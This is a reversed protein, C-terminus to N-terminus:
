EMSARIMDAVSRKLERLPRISAVPCYLCSEDTIKGTILQKRLDTYEASHMAKRISTEGNTRGMKQSRMFCSHVDGSPMLYPSDWPLMCFRTEGPGPVKTRTREGNRLPIVAIDLKVGFEDEAKDSALAHKVMEDWAPLLNLTIGKQEALERAKNIQEVTRSFSENRLKFVNNKFDMCNIQTVGSSEAQKLIDPLRSAITENLNCTWQIEPGSQGKSSAAACIQKTKLSLSEGRNECDSASSIIQLNSYNSWKRCVEGSLEVEINICASTIGLPPFRLDYDALIKPFLHEEKTNQFNNIKHVIELAQQATKEWRSSQKGNHVRIEHEMFYRHFSDAYDEMWAAVCDVSFPTDLEITRVDRKSMDFGIMEDSDSVIYASEIDECIKRVCDDDITGHFDNLIEPHIMIPHLHFNHALIGEGPIEWLLQSTWGNYKESGIVANRVDPHLNAIAMDVMDRAPIPAEVRGKNFFRDRMLPRFDEKTVRMTGIMIAKYGEKTRRYLNRFTSESFVADPALIVARAGEANAKRLAHKHSQIMYDYKNAEDMLDFDVTYIRVDMIRILEKYAPSQKIIHVDEPTTYIIYVSRAETNLVEINNPGLQTPLVDDAFLTTFEEGFVTIVVHFFIDEKRRLVSSDMHTECPFSDMDSSNYAHQLFQKKANENGPELELAHTLMEGAQHQMDQANFVAAITLSTELDPKATDLYREFYKVATKPRDCELALEAAMKLAQTNEQEVKLIRKIAIEAEIYKKDAMFTAANEILEAIGM